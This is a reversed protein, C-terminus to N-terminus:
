EGLLTPSTWRFRRYSGWGRKIHSSVDRRAEALLFIKEGLGTSPRAQAQQHSQTEVGASVGPCGKEFSRYNM